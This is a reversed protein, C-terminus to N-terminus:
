SEDKRKHSNKDRDSPMATRPAKARVFVKLRVVDRPSLNAQDRLYSGWISRPTRFQEVRCRKFRARAGCDGDDSETAYEDFPPHGIFGILMMRKM